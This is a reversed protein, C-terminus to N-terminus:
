NSKRYIRGDDGRYADVGTHFWRTEERVTFRELELNTDGVYGDALTPGSIVLEGTADEPVDSGDVPVPPREVFGESVVTADVGAVPEGLCAPPSNGASGLVLPGTETRGYAYYWEDCGAELLRDIRESEFPEGIGGVVRVDSLDADDFAAASVLETAMPSVTHYVSIKGSELWEITEDITPRELPYYTGGTAFTAFLVPTIAFRHFAPMTGLQGDEPSLGGPIRDTVADITSRLAEHTISAGVTKPTHRGGYSIVALDDDERAITEWYDSLGTTEVFSDYDVGLRADSDGVHVIADATDIEALLSTVRDTQTLLITTECDSSIAAIESPEYHPPVPVAVSGNRLTGLMSVVFEPTNTLCLVVADGSKVGRQRLGGAFEGATRWLDAYTYEVEDTVLAAVTPHSEVTKRIEHIVNTM